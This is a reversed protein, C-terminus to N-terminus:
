RRRSRAPRAALGKRNIGLRLSLRRIKAAANSAGVSCWVDPRVRGATLLNAGCSLRLARNGDGSQRKIYLTMFATTGHRTIPELKIEVATATTKIKTFQAISRLAIKRKQRSQMEKNRM